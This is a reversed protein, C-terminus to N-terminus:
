VETPTPILISARPVQWVTNRVLGSFYDQAETEGAIFQTYYGM